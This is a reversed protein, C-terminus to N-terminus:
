AGKVSVSSMPFRVGGKLVYVFEGDAGSMEVLVGEAWEFPTWQGGGTLIQGPVGSDIEVFTKM